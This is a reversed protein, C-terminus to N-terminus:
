LGSKSAPAIININIYYYQKQVFASMINHTSKDWGCLMENDATLTRYETRSLNLVVTTVLVSM